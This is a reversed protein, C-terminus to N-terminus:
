KHVADMSKYKNLKYRVLHYAVFKANEHIMLISDPVHSPANDQRKAKAFEGRNPPLPERRILDM